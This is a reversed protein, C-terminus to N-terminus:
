RLVDIIPKFWLSLKSEVNPAYKGPQVGVVHVHDQPTLRHIEYALVGGASSGIVIAAVYKVIARGTFM